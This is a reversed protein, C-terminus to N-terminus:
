PFVSRIIAVGGRNDRYVGVLVGSSGSPSYQVAEDKDVRSFQFEGVNSFWTILMNETLTSNGDPGQYLYSEGDSLDDITLNAKATPYAALDVGADQINGSITPNTNLGSSKTTLKIRRFTKISNNSGQDSITVIVIVDIGNFQTKSNVTALYAFASAPVSVNIANMPGTYFNASGITNTNFTDTGNDLPNAYSDCSIAAGYIIGPDLCAEWSIDLTTDGGDTYSLYPTIAVTSATNIEPTDATLALIRLGELRSYKKMDDDGCSM